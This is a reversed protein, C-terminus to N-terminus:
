FLPTMISGPTLGSSDLRESFIIGSIYDFLPNIAHFESNYNCQFFDSDTITISCDVCSNM